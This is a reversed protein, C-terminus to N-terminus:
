VKSLLYGAAESALELFGARLACLSFDEWPAPKLLWFVAVSAEYECFSGRLSDFLRVGLLVSPTNTFLLMPALGFSTAELEPPSGGGLM